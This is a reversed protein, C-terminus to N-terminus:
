SALCPLLVKICSQTRADEVTLDGSLYGSPMSPLYGIAMEPGNRADSNFITVEAM